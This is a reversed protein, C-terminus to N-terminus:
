KKPSIEHIFKQVNHTQHEDPQEAPDSRQGDRDHKERVVSPCSVFLQCVVSLCSVHVNDFEDLYERKVRAVV